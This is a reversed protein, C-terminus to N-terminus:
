QEIHDYHIIVLQFKIASNYYFLSSTFHMICYVYLSSLNTKRKALCVNEEADGNAAM